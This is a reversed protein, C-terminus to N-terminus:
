TAKLLGVVNGSPDSFMAITVGETVKMTPMLTNGGAANIKTLYADPDDVQIYITTRPQDQPGMTGGIGGGVGQGENDVLAYNGMDPMADGVKWDFVNKYFGQLAASDRGIIEFWTVPNAM